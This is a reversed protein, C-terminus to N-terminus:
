FRNRLANKITESDTYEIEAGTSLGRGLTTIKAGIKEALDAIQKKVINLTHEGEPNANVAIIIERLDPSIEVLKRLENLRVKEEPNKNLIPVLGGLVFYQGDYAGAREMSEVDSDNAVIMLTARSRNKNACIPCKKEDQHMVFFRCCSNCTRVNKKIGAIAGSIKQLVYTDQKLLHYVFRQAQKPGIGPFKRFYETLENILDM